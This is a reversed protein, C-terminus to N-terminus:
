WHGRYFLVVVFSDKALDSLRRAAGDSDPLCFDPAIAGVTTKRHDDM